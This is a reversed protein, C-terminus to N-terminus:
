NEKFSGLKAFNLISFRYMFRTFKILGTNLLTIGVHVVFQAIARAITKRALAKHVFSCKGVQKKKHTRKAV